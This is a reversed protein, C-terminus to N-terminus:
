QLKEREFYYRGSGRDIFGTLGVSIFGAIATIFHSHYSLAFVPLGQFLLSLGFSLPFNWSNKVSRYNIEQFYLADLLAKDEDKKSKVIFPLFALSSLFIYISQGDWQNMSLPDKVECM